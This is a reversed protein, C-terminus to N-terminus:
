RMMAVANQLEEPTFATFGLRTASTDTGDLRYYRGPRLKLGQSQCAKIWANFALPDSMTEKGELWFAMAGPRWKLRDGMGHRLADQLAESREGAAKRVRFIQRQIEGDLFLESLAWEQVPDGQWDIRQRARALLTALSNPVVLYSVRLGPAFIRSLSGMHLVQGPDLAALCETTPLYDHEADLELVPFRHRRSLELIQARRSTELRVGTPFQCQPTLILLKLSGEALLAELGEVKVGESDVPLGRLNATCAQKLTEWVEPHGPTEIAVAGGQSGILTQAVLTVAMSTSRLILIRSPDVMLARHDAVHTVLAERLRLLGMPDHTEMLQAGKLRLGRQYARGLAQFPALRGDALGDTFDMVVNATSTVPQLHKPLDFDPLSPRGVTQHHSEMPPSSAVFFGSREQSTLWGQAQLERLAALITNITVGLQEALNRISPLAMGPRLHGQHIAELITEAVQLYLPVPSGQLLKLELDNGRKV